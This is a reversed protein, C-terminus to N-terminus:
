EELHNKQGNHLQALCFVFKGVLKLRIRYAFFANLEVYCPGCVGRPTHQELEPLLPFMYEEVVDLLSAGDGPNLANLSILSSYPQHQLCIPCVQPFHELRFAGM